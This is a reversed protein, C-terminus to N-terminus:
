KAVVLCRSALMAWPAGTDLEACSLVAASDFLLDVLEAVPEDVLSFGLVAGTAGAALGTMPENPDAATLPSRTSQGDLLPITDIGSVQLDLLPVVAHTAISVEPPSAEACGIWDPRGAVTGPGPLALTGIVEIAGRGLM